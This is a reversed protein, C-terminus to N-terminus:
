LVRVHISWLFEESSAEPLRNRSIHPNQVGAFSFAESYWIKLEHSRGVYTPGSSARQFRSKKISFSYVLLLSIIIRYITLFPALCEEEDRKRPLGELLIPPKVFNTCSKDFDYIELIWIKVEAVWQKVDSWALPPAFCEGRFFTLKENSSRRQLVGLSWQFCTDDRTPKDQFNLCFSM